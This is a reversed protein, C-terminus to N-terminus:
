REEDPPTKGFDVDVTKRGSTVVLGGLRRDDEVPRPHELAFPDGHERYLMAIGDVYWREGHHHM